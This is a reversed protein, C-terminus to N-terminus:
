EENELRQWRGGAATRTITHRSVGFRKALENVNSANPGYIKYNKRIFLVDEKKLKSAGSREGWPSNGHRIMDESNQKHTAWYLNSLRNDQRIGNKHAAVMGKGSSKTFSQLLLRHASTGFTKKTDRYWM